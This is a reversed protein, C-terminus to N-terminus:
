AGWVMAVLYAAGVFRLGMYIALAKADAEIRDFAAVFRVGAIADFSRLILFLFAFAFFIKVMSLAQGVLIVDYLETM